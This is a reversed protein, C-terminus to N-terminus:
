KKELSRTIENILINVSEDIEYEIKKRREVVRKKDFWQRNFYYKKILELSQDVNNTICDIVPADELFLSVIDKYKIHWSFSVVPIGMFLASSISHYRGTIYFDLLGIIARVQAYTLDIDDILFVNSRDKIKDYIKRALSLDCTKTNKRNVVSHPILLVQQNNSLYFNIIKECLKVHYEGCSSSNKSANLGSIVASPSLGGIKNNTNVGLKKIYNVAWSRKEAKLSLSIDPVSYLHSKINLKKIEEFNKKGRIFLFPLKDLQKKVLFKYIFDRKPFPGYSKTYKLYLKDNKEALWQMSITGFYDLYRKKIPNNGVFEIGSLDIVVDIERLINALVIARRKENISLNERKLLRYLFNIFSYYNSFIASLKPKTIVNFIYKKVFSSKENQHQKDLVFTYKANIQKNMKEMLPFAIGQAGYNHKLYQLGTFLIKIRKKM